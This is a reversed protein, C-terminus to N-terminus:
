KKKSFKITAQKAKPEVVPAVAAKKPKAAVKPAPKPPEPEEEAVEEEAPEPTPEGIAPEAPEEAPEEAPTPEETQTPEEAVEETVSEEDSNAEPAVPGAAPASPAQVPAAEIAAPGAPADASDGFILDDEIDHLFGFGTLKLPPYLMIQLARLTVGFGKAGGWIGGIEFIVRMRHGKGLKEIEEPAMSDLDIPQRESNFVRTMFKGNKQGIKFRVRPAYKDTFQLLTKDYYRKVCTNHLSQAIKDSLTAKKLWANSNAKVDTIIREDLSQLWNTFQEVKGGGDKGVQVEISYAPEANPDKKDKLVSIGFPCLMLPTQIKIRQREYNMSVNTITGTKNPKPPGYTFKKIDVEEFTKLTSSATKSM